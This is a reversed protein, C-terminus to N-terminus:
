REIMRLWLDGARNFLEIDYRGDHKAKYRKLDGLTKIEKIESLCKECIHKVNIKM